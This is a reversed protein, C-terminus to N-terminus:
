KCKFCTPLHSTRSSQGGRNAPTLKSANKMIKSAKSGSVNYRTSDAKSSSHLPVNSYRKAGSKIHKAEVKLALQYADFLRWLQIEM